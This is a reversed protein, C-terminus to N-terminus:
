PEPNSPPHINQINQINQENQINQMDQINQINHTNQGFSDFPLNGLNNEIEPFNSSRDPQPSM